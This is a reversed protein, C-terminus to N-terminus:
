HASIIIATSSPKGPKLISIVRAHKWVTPFQHTLIANFIKFLVSVARQPLHKLVRNPIGNPSPAKSVRVGRIADQVVDPNPLKPVSAPVSFYSRLGV